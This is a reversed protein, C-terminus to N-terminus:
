LQFFLGTRTEKSEVGLAIDIIGNGAIVIQLIFLTLPCTLNPHIFCIHFIIGSAMEDVECFNGLLTKRKWSTLYLCRSNFVNVIGYRGIRIVMVMNNLPLKDILDTLRMSLRTLRRIVWALIHVQWSILSPHAWKWNYVICCTSNYVWGFGHLWGLRAPQALYRCRSFEASRCWCGTNIQQWM